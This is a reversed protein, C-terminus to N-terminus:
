AGNWWGETLVGAGGVRRAEALLRDVTGVSIGPGLAVAARALMVARWPPLRTLIRVPAPQGALLQHLILDQAWSYAPNHYCAECRGDEAPAGGPPTIPVLRKLNAVNRPGAGHDTIAILASDQATMRAFQRRHHRSDPTCQVVPRTSCTM